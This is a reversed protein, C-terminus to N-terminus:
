GTLEKIIANKITVFDKENTLRTLQLSALMNTVLLLAQTRAPVSFRFVRKAKGEELIQTVWVLIKAVLERLVKAMSEEVTHLDTALSGVLCVRNEARTYTYISLFAKLKTLPDKDKTRQVLEEVKDIHQQIVCIGLDTKSPFYYHISANKIGLKKSIDYFSFANFGKDRILEDGLRIIADRTSM